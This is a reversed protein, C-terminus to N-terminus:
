LHRFQPESGSLCKSSTIFPIPASSLKPRHGGTGTSKANEERLGPFASRGEGPFYCARAQCGSATTVMWPSWAQDGEGLVEHLGPGLRRARAAQSVGEMQSTEGRRAPLHPPGLGSLLTSCIAQCLGRETGNRWKTFKPGPISM